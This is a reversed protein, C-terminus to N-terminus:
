LGGDKAQKKGMTRYNRAVPAAGAPEVRRREVLVHGDYIREEVIGYGLDRTERRLAAM